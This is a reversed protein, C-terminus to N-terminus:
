SVPLELEKSYLAKEKVFQLFDAEDRHPLLEGKWVDFECICVTIRNVAHDGIPFVSVTGSGNEMQNGEADFVLPICDKGGDAYDVSLEFPTVTITHLGVGEGNVEEVTVTHNGTGNVTVPITFDWPGEFWYNECPNPYQDMGYERMKEYYLTQFAEDSMRELEEESVGWDVTVPEALDGVIQELHIEMTFQEPLTLKEAYQLVQDDTVPLEEGAAAAEAIMQHIKSYDTLVGDLNIRWIGAFTRDDLFTGELDKEGVYPEQPRFSFLSSATLSLRQGGDTYNAIKDAFPEPSEVLMSISLSEENCYVESLTVTVGGATQTYTSVPDEAKSEGDSELVPDELPQAYGEYDGPFEATKQLMSFIRGIVPIKAALVPNASCIGLFLLTFAAAAAVTKVWVPIQKTQTNKRTNKRTNKQEEKMKDKEQRSESLIQAFAADAKETVIAPLEMDQRFASCIKENQNM